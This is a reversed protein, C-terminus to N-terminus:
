DALATNTAAEEKTPLAHVRIYDERMQHAEDDTSDAVIRDRERRLAHPCSPANYAEARSVTLPSANADLPATSM